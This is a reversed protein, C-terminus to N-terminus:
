FDGGEPVYRRLLAVLQSRSTLSCLTLMKRIRYKVTSLTLYCKEAIKENSDNQLMCRIIGRDTEESGYLLKELVMMENLEPDQYFADLASPLAIPEAAPRKQAEPPLQATLDSLDWNVAMVVHTLYPNKELCEMAMVAAKGYEQFNLHLRYIDEKYLETLRVEQYGIIRMRKLRQPDDRRLRRVLSIALFCNACLVADFRDGYQIFREYCQKMSGMNYFVAQSGMDMLSQYCEMRSIDAVSQPNVGYLAIRGCGLKRLQEIVQRTSSAVDSCVSSYTCHFHHSSQSCLLIPYIGLQNCGVLAANVWADDSGVLFVYKCDGAIEKLSGAEKYPLRKQKLQGILGSLVSTCWVSQSYSPDVLICIM